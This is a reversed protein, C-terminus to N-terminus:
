SSLRQRWWAAIRQAPERPERMWAFHDARAGLTDSEIVQHERDGSGTADILAELSAPPVLWDDAFRLGLVPAAVAAMREDLDAPLGRLGAYRGRRVTTAWDRMLQGAERGAFGLRHGPYHGVLRTLIPLSAAFGGVAAKPGLGPFLRWHPVGSGVIVIGAAPTGLAAAMVAHQGGISHGGLLLPGQSAQANFAALSAPLDELLWERYGWDDRRSPRHGCCGTGRWEHLGVTIGRGALEAAFRDYKAAPVGLAPLWLLRAATPGESAHVRLSPRLSAATPTTM